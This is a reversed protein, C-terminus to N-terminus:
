RVSLDLLACLGRGGAGTLTVCKGCNVTHGNLRTVPGLFFFLVPHSFSFPLAVESNLKSELCVFCLIEVPAFSLLGWHSRTPPLADNILHARLKPSMDTPPQHGSPPRPRKWPLLLATGEGKGATVGRSSGRHWPTSAM